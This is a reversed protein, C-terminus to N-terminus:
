SNSAWRFHETKLGAGVSVNRTQTKNEYAATVSYTGAPLKAMFFPGDAVHEVLTKGGSNKISVSVDSLYNGEVLTFVLKLNFEKEHARLQEQSASGIGGSVFTVGNQVGPKIAPVQAMALTACMMTILGSFIMQRM